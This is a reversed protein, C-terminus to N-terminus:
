NLAESPLTIKTAPKQKEISRIYRSMREQNLTETSFEAALRIQAGKYRIEEKERTAKLIREKDQFKAMKIIIHRISAHVMSM